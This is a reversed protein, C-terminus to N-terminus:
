TAAASEAVRVSGGASPAAAGAAARRARAADVVVVPARAVAFFAGAAAPVAFGAAGFRVRAAAALAAGAL